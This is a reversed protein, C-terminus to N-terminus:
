GDLAYREIAKRLAAEDPFVGQHLYTREGRANYFVTTPWARGGGYSRAVKADQDEIHPYPTPYQALFENADDTSDKSNVGLFAVKGRLAIAQRQFFPFEYRCPRCWSAWQNVVVPTGRLESLESEFRAVGGALLRSADPDIARLRELESSRVATPEPAAGCGGLAVTGCVALLAGLLIRRGIM